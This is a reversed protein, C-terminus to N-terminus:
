VPDPTYEIFRGEVEPQIREPAIQGPMAAMKAYLSPFQTYTVVKRRHVHILQLLVDSAIEEDTMRHVKRIFAATTAYYAEPRISVKGKLFDFEDYFWAYDDRRGRRRELMEEAQAESGAVIAAFPALEKISDVCPTVIIVAKGHLFHAETAAQVLRSTKGTQRASM